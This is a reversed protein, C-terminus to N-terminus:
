SFRYPGMGAAFSSEKKPSKLCLYNLYAVLYELFEWAQRRKSLRFKARSSSIKRSPAGAIEAEVGPPRRPLHMPFLASSLRASPRHGDALWSSSLLPRGPSSVTLASSVANSRQYRLYHLLRSVPSGRLGYTLKRLCSSISLASGFKGLPQFRM